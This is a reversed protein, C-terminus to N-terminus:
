YDFYLKIEKNFITLLRLLILTLYRNMGCLYAFNECSDRNNLRGLGLEIFLELQMPSFIQFDEGVMFSAHNLSYAYLTLADFLRRVPYYQEQLYTVEENQPIFLHSQYFFANSVIQYICFDQEQQRLYIPFNKLAQDIPRSHITIMKKYRNMHM